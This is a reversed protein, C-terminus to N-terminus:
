IFFIMSNEPAETFYHVNLTVTLRLVGKNISFIAPSFNGSLCIRERFIRRWILSFEGLSFGGGRRPLSGEPFDGVRLSFKGDSFDRM